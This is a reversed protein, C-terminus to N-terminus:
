FSGSKFSLWRRSIRYDVFHMKEMLIKGIVKYGKRHFCKTESTLVLCDSILHSRNVRHPIQFNANTVKGKQATRDQCAQLDRLFDM